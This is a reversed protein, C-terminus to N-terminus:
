DLLQRGDESMQIRAYICVSKFPEALRRVRRKKRKSAHTIKCLRVAYMEPM